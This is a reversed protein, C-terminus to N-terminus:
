SYTQEIKWVLTHICNHQVLDQVKWIYLHLPFLCLYFSKSSCLDLHKGYQDVRAPPPTKLM